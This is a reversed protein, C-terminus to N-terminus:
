RVPPARSIPKKGLMIQIFEDINPEPNRLLVKFKSM